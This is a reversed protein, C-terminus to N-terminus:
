TWPLFSPFLLSGVVFYATFYVAVLARSVSCKSSGATEKSDLISVVYWYIPPCQSLLFRTAVQIHMSTFAYLLLFALHVFAPFSDATAFKLAGPRPKRGFLLAVFRAPSWSLYSGVCLASLVLVPSALAFNPLQKATWYLLFGSNWYFEQVFSYILPLSNGCWPRPAISEHACYQLYGYHQFAFFPLFTLIAAVLLSIMQVLARPKGHLVHLWLTFFPFGALIFGNSRAFGAIFFCLAMPLYRQKSWM